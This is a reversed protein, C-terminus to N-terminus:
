QKPRLAMLVGTYNGAKIAIPSLDDTFEIRVTDDNLASLIEILHEANLRMRTKGDSKATITKSTPGLKSQNSFGVTGAEFAVNVDFNEDQELLSGCLRIANLAEERNFESFGSFSAPIVQKYNPYEANILPSSIVCGDIQFSASNERVIIQAPTKGVCLREIENAAKTPLIFSFDVGATGDFRCLRRGDCAVAVSQGKSSKFFVGNLAPRGKDVSAAFSTLRLMERLGCQPIQFSTGAGSKPSPFEAPDLGGFEVNSGGSEISLRLGDKTSLEVPTEGVFSAVSSLRRWSVLSAGVEKISAPVTCEIRVDLSDASIRVGDKEAELLVMNLVPLPHRSSAAGSVTKLGRALDAQAITARM